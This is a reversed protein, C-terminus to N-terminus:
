GPTLKEPPSLPVGGLPDSPTSMFYFTSPFIHRLVFVFVRQSPTMLVFDSGPHLVGGGRALLHYSWELMEQTM